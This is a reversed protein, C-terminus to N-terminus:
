SSLVSSSYVSAEDPKGYRKGPEEDDIEVPFPDASGIRLKLRPGVCIVRKPGPTKASEAPNLSVSWRRWRRALLQYAYNSFTGFASDDLAQDHKMIKM